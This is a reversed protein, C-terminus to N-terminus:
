QANPPTSHIYYEPPSAEYFTKRLVEKLGSLLITPGAHPTRRSSGDSFCNHPSVAPSPEPEPEPEPDHAPALGPVDSRLGMLKLAADADLGHDNMQGDWGFRMVLEVQRVLEDQFDRLQKESYWLTSSDMSNSSSGGSGSTCTDDWEWTAISATTETARETSAGEAAAEKLEKGTPVLVVKVWPDFQVQKRGGEDEEPEPATRHLHSWRWLKSSSAFRRLTPMVSSGLPEPALPQKDLYQNGGIMRSLAWWGHSVKKRPGRVIETPNISKPAAAPMSPSAGGHGSAGPWSFWTNNKNTTM